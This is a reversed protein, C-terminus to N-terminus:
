ERKNLSPANIRIMWRIVNTWDGWIIFTSDFCAYNERKRPMGWRDNRTM